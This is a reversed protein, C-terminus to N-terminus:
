LFSSEKIVRSLYPSQTSVAEFTGEAEISGSNLVIIHDSRSIASLRHAVVIRTIGANLLNSSIVTQSTADLASTAEDELLIRPKRIIARAIAIRQRQGGSINSAGESLMTELGMPMEGIERAVNAFELADWIDSDKYDLGSSISDRISGAPLSPKQLIVGFLRRYDKVFIDDIPIGDILISGSSPQYFRLILNFLTSKGCGSPGFVANFKGHRFTCKLNEFVPNPSGPYSFSVNGLELSTTFDSKYIPSPILYGSEPEHSLIPLAREWLLYTSGILDNVVSVVEVFKNSMSDYTASFVIFTTAATLSEILTEARVMRIVVVAFLVVKGGTTVIESVLESSSEASSKKYQKSSAHILGGFWSKIALPESGNSRIQPISSIIQLSSQFVKAKSLEIDRQLSIQRRALIFQIIGGFLVLAISWWALTSDYYFMLLSYGILSLSSILAALPSGSLSRAVQQLGNIRSGFDGTSYQNIFDLPLKVVRDYVAVQLRQSVAHQIRSLYTAQLWTFSASFLTVLLGVIFANILLSINGSPVVNGVVEATLWPTLLELATLLVALFIAVLSDRAIIPFLFGYLSRISQINSPLGAYIEYGEVPLLSVDEVLHSADAEPSYVYKKGLTDYFISPLSNGKPIFVVPPQASKSDLSITARRYHLGASEILLELSYASSNFKLTDRCKLLSFLKIILRSVHTDEINGDQPIEKLDLSFSLSLLDAEPTQPLM